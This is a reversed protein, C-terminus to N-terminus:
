RSSWVGIGMTSCSLGLERHPRVIELKDGELERWFRAVGTTQRRYGTIDHLAILRHPHARAIAFDRAVAHYAHNADILVLDVHGLSKRFSRFGDSESDGRFFRTEEPVRIPLGLREAWGHDCAAVLRFRFLRHLTSLLRGTWIGIELYSEVREREILECLAVLEDRSQLIADELPEGHLALLRETEADWCKEAALEAAFDRM